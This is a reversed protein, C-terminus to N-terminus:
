HFTYISCPVVFTKAMQCIRGFKCVEPTLNFPLLIIIFLLLSKREGLLSGRFFCGFFELDGFSNLHRFYGHPLGGEYNGEFVTDDAQRLQVPGEEPEEELTELEDTSTIGAM